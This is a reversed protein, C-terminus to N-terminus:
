WCLDLTSTLFHIGTGDHGGKFLVSSLRAAAGVPLILRFPM